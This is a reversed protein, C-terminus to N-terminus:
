RPAKRTAVGASYPAAAAFPEGASASAVPSAGRYGEPCARHPPPQSSVVTSSVHRATASDRTKEEWKEEWDKGEGGGGEDENGDEDRGGTKAHDLSVDGEEGGESVGELLASRRQLHFLHLLHRHHFHRLNLSVTRRRRTCTCVGAKGM